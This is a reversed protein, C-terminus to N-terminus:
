NMGYRRHREARRRRAYAAPSESRAEVIWKNGPIDAAAKPVTGDAEVAAIGATMVAGGGMVACPVVGPRSLLFQVAASLGPACTDAIPRFTDAPVVISAARHIALAERVSRQWQVCAGPVRGLSRLFTRGPDTHSCAVIAVIAPGHHKLGQIILDRLDGDCIAANLLDRRFQKGDESVQANMTQTGKEIDRV